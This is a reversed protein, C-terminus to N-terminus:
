SLAGSFYEAKPYSCLDAGKEKEKEAEAKAWSLIQRLEETQQQTLNVQKQGCRVYGQSLSIGYDGGFETTVRYEPLCRCIPDSYDLWRLFDTLAVSQDAWFSVSWEEQGSYPFVVKTVTNGCYGVPDHPLVNDMGATHSYDGPESLTAGTKPGTCGGLFLCVLMLVIVKKM